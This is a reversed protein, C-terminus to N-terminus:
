IACATAELLNAQIALATTTASSLPRALIASRKCSHSSTLVSRLDKLCLHATGVSDGAWVIEAAINISHCIQSSIAAASIAENTLDSSITSPM